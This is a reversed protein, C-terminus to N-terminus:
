VKGPLQGPSFLNDPDLEMKLRHMLKWAPNALGFVDNREKFEDPAKELLIHGEHKAACDCVKRWQENSLDGLGAYIRGNGSDLLSQYISLAQDLIKFIGAVQNLLCDCRLIFPAKGIQEYINGFVGEHVSYDTKDLDNLQNEQLITACKELQYDVTQSFGEFGVVVNWHNNESNPAPMCTVFNPLVNSKLVAETTATCKELSGQATITTCREPIM